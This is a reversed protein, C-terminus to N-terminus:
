AAYSIDDRAAIRRCSALGNNRLDRVGRVSVQLDASVDADPLVMMGIGYFAWLAYAQRPPIESLLYAVLSHTECVGPIDLATYPACHSM